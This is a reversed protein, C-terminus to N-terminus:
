GETAQALTTLGLARFDPHEASHALIALGLNVAWGRARRWVEPDDHGTAAVFRPRAEPPFLMWAVALDSAPDGATLDGFDIVASVAGDAVVLNGPHVDGHLWVPAEAYVPAAVASDFVALLATRDVVPGLQDLREHVRETCTAVPQGRFPNVPADPPAPQHLAALFRGLVEATAGLDAPPTALATTGPFWPLVSWPWPYGEGPTGIRVPAPIPLPLRPALSPLWRQEHAVLPVAAAR